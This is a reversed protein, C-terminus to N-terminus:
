FQLTPRLGGVTGKAGLEAVDDGVVDCGSVIAVRGIKLHTTRTVTHFPEVETVLDFDLLSLLGTLPVVLGTAIQTLRLPNGV